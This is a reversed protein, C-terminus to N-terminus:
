YCTETDPILYFVIHDIIKIFNTRDTINEAEEGYTVKRNSLM